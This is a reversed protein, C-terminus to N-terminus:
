GAIAQILDYETIIHTVSSIDKVLVASNERNIHGSIEKSTSKWDVFPFPKGMVASVLQNRDAGDLLHTLLSHDTVSGVVEENKMVPLQSLGLQKMIAIAEGLTQDPSVTLFKKLEKRGVINAATIEKSEEDLWKRDRM